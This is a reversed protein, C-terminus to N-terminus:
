ASRAAVQAFNGQDQFWAEELNDGPGARDVVLFDQPQLVLLPHHWTNPRYNVGQAGDAGFCKLTAPDPADVGDCVVVLWDQRALPYFAQSGIPHREMMRIVIPQPRPTARFVSLIPKGEERGVDVAALDHYRTTTGENISFEQAGATEIVDGFPAFAQKTLPEITLQRAIM